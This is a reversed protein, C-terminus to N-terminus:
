KWEWKKRPPKAKNGAAKRKVSSKLACAKAIAAHKLDARYFNDATVASLTKAVSTMNKALVTTRKQHAPQARLAAARSSSGLPTHCV